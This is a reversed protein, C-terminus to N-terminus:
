VIIEDQFLDGENEIQTQINQWSMDTDEKMIKSFIQVYEDIKKKNWDQEYKMQRALERLALCTKTRQLLKSSYVEVKLIRTLIMAVASAVVATIRMVIDLKDLFSLSICILPIVSNVALVINCIKMWKKYHKRREDFDKIKKKVDAILISKLQQDADQLEMYERQIARFEEAIIERFLKKFECYQNLEQEDLEENKKLKELIVAAKGKEKTLDSIQCDSKGQETRQAQLFIDELFVIYKGCPPQGDADRYGEEEKTLKGEHFSAHIFPPLLIEKQDAFYYDTGLVEELDLHPISLPLVFELLTLKKKKKFYEGPHNEKSTSTFSITRGQEKMAQVSIGRDTRYIVTCRKNKEQTKACKCMARFIDCFVEVVNEIELFIKSNLSSANEATREKENDIGDFMLCNMTKYARPIGFFGDARTKDIFGGDEGRKRIDGQYFRITDIEKDTLM